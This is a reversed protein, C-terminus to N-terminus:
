TGAHFATTLYAATMQQLPASTATGPGESTHTHENFLMMFLDTVVQHLAEGPAFAKILGSMDILVQRGGQDYHRSGGSPLGTMRSPQHNTSIVVSKSRQGAASIYVADSGFPPSSEFGFQKPIPMGDRVESASLRVQGVQVVGSDDVLQVKGLGIFLHTENYGDM